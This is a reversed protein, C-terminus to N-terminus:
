EPNSAPNSIRVDDVPEIIGIGFFHAWIMNALNPAFFPNDASALWKAM